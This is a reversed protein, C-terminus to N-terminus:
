VVDTATIQGSGTVDHTFSYLSSYETTMDKAVAGIILKREKYMM